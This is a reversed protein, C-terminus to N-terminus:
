DCDFLIRNVGITDLQVNRSEQFVHGPCDCTYNMKRFDLADPQFYSSDGPLIESFVQLTDNNDRRVRYILEIDKVMCSDSQNNFTIEVFTLYPFDRNPTSAWALYLFVALIPISVLAKISTKM